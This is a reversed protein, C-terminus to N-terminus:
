EEEFYKARSADIELKRKNWKDFVSYDPKQGPKFQNFFSVGPDEPTAVCEKATNVLEQVLERYGQKSAQHPKLREDPIDGDLVGYYTNSRRIGRLMEDLVVKPLGNQDLYEIDDPNVYKQWNTMEDNLVAIDRVSRTDPNSANHPIQRDKVVKLHAAKGGIRMYGANSRNICAVAEHPEEFGIYAMGLIPEKTLECTVFEISSKTRRRQSFKQFVRTLFDKTMVEPALNRVILMSAHSIYFIRSPMHIGDVILRPGNVRIEEKRDYPHMEAHKLERRARLFRVKYTGMEKLRNHFLSSQLISEVQDASSLRVLASNSSLLYIASPVLSGYVQALESYEPMLDEALSKKTNKTNYIPLNTLHIICDPSKASDVFHKLSPDMDLFFDPDYKQVLPPSTQFRESPGDKLIDALHRPANFGVFASTINSVFVQTSDVKVLRAISKELLSRHVPNQIDGMKGDVTLPPLGTVFLFRKFKEVFEQPPNQIDPNVSFLPKPERKSNRHVSYSTVSAYDTPHEHMAAVFDLGTGQGMTDALPLAIKRFEKSQPDEDEEYTLESDDKKIIEFIDNGKDFFMTQHDRPDEKVDINALLRKNQVENLTAQKFISEEDRDGANAGVDNSRQSNETDGDNDEGSGAGKNDDYADPNPFLDYVDEDGEELLWDPPKYNLDEDTYFLKLNGKEDYLFSDDTDDTFWVDYDEENWYYKNPDQLEDLAFYSHTTSLFKPKGDPGLETTDILKHRPTKKQESLEPTRQERQGGRLASSLQRHRGYSPCSTANPVKSWYDRLFFCSRRRAILDLSCRSRIM